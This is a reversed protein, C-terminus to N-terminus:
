HSHTTREEQMLLRRLVGPGLAKSIETTAVLPLLVLLLVVSRAVMVEISHAEYGALTEALSHGHVLGVM